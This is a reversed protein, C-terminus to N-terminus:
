ASKMTVTPKADSVETRALNIKQKITLLYHNESYEVNLIKFTHSCRQILKKQFFELFNSINSFKFNLFKKQIIILLNRLIRPLTNSNKRNMVQVFCWWQFM